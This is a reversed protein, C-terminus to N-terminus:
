ITTKTRSSIMHAVAAVLENPEAPKAVHRDYGARVADDRDRLTAFSTLALAPILGGDDPPLARVARILAYGDEDPMGIDAVLADFHRTKLAHLAERASGVATVDASRAKLILATLSRADLDDDVVLVHRSALVPEQEISGSPANVARYGIEEIPLRVKFVAGSGPGESNAAVTGGHGETLHRVIALGLGLGGHRRSTRSDSQRFREFVHPLFDPAIGEGTDRVLLEAWSGQHLLEIHIHGSAPTFKVANSVLNLVVQQLRTADGRVIISVTPDIVAHLHVGKAEAAMRMTDVASEVVSELPVPDSKLQLKDSIIRSTDLLDEILQAQARANREISDLARERASSDLSITRLTHAWGLIANLPTRLEHSLTALFEDKIQNAKQLSEYLQANTLAIGALGAVAAIIHQHRPTFQNPEPHGLLIGGLVESTQSIVPIAL